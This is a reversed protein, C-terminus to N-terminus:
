NLITLCIKSIIKQKIEGLYCSQFVLNIFGLDGLDKNAPKKKKNKFVYFFDDLSQIIIREYTGKKEFQALKILYEESKSDDEKKIADLFLLLYAEFFNLNNENSSVHRLEQAAKKIKGEHVLSNIYNRLYPKHFHILSKSSNFFKLSEKNQQNEFSVLASFYSSLNKTKFDTNNIIKSYVPNINLFLLLILIKFINNLM